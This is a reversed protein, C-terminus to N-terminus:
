QAQGGLALLGDSLKGFEELTLTEGRRQPDIDLSSCVSLIGDPSIQLFPANKLANSLTKRKQAFAAKVVKKFYREDKLSIRPQDLIRFKVVASEVRPRPHFAASPVIMELSMDCYMQILVALIGYTKTKPSATLRNAVEKQLMLVMSEIYQRSDLLCFIIPTSISYPLNAIIKIKKGYLRAIKQYDFKLADENVLQINEFGALKETLVSFLGRDIEIAIVKKVKKAIASSLGGWGAGIEIVIDEKELDSVNVIQKLISKNVLFNQGWRKRPFINYRKLEQKVSTM